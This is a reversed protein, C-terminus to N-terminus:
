IKIKMGEKQIVENEVLYNIAPMAAQPSKFRKGNGNMLTATIARIEVWDGQGNDRLWKEIEQAHEKTKPGISGNSSSASLTTSNSEATLARYESSRKWSAEKKRNYEQMENDYDTKAESRMSAVAKGAIFTIIPSALGLSSRVLGVPLGIAVDIATIIAIFMAAGAEIWYWSKGEKYKLTLGAIFITLEFTIFSVLLILGQAAMKANNSLGFQDVILVIPSVQMMSYGTQIGSLIAAGIAITIQGYIRYPDIHPYPPVPRSLKYNAEWETYVEKFISPM